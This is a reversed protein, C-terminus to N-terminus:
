LGYPKALVYEEVQMHKSVVIDIDLLDSTHLEHTRKEKRLGTTRNQDNFRLVTTDFLDMHLHVFLRWETPHYDM